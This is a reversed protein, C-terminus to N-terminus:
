THLANERRTAVERVTSAIRYREGPDVKYQLVAKKGEVAMATDIQCHLFGANNLVRTMDSITSNVKLTDLLAPPEGIKRLIKAGKGNSGPKSACYIRMPIKLGFWKTNPNQKVYNQLYLNKTLEHNASQVEVKKLYLAEDPVYKDIACSFFGM